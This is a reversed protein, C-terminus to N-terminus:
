RCRSIKSRSRDLAKLDKVDPKEKKPELAKADQLLNEDGEDESKIDSSVSSTSQGHLGGTLASSCSSSCCVLHSFM